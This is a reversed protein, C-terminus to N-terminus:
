MTKIASVTALRFFNMHRMVPMMRAALGAQDPIIKQEMAWEPFMAATGPVLPNGVGKEFSKQCGKKKNGAM